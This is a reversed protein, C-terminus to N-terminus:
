LDVAVKKEDLRFEVVPKARGARIAPQLYDDTALLQEDTSAQAALERDMATAMDLPLQSALPVYISAVYYYYSSTLGILLMLLYIQAFSAEKLAMMGVMTSQAFLLAVVFCRAMMPWWKGGTEFIPEYVFLMQHKYVFTAGAFYLLAAALIVPCICAYTAAVVFLLMDQAYIKAFPFWGPNSTNRVAGFLPAAQRDRPTLNATFAAKLLASFLCPLRVLEVGLGTLAKVLIFNTFFGGMKPLSSGLLPFTAAPDKSLQAVVNVVSGAITTVLFVNLIQFTFYRHFSRMQNVSFSTCGEVTALFTLVPPLLNMIGVLVLPQLMEVLSLFVKSRACGAAVWPFYGGLADVSFVFSLLTVPAIWVAILLLVAVEVVLRRALTGKRSGYLNSWMVDSPEPAEVVSMRGALQMHVVQRATTAATFTRFTVFAKSLFMRREEPPSILSRSEESGLGDSFEEGMRGLRIRRWGQMVSPSTWVEWLWEGYSMKYAQFRGEAGGSSQSSASCHEDDSDPCDEGSRPAARSTDFSQYSSDGYEWEEAPPASNSKSHSRHGAAASAGIAKSSKFGKKVIETVKLFEDIVHLDPGQEAASLRSDHESLGRALRQERAVAINLDDLQQSHHRIADVADLMNGVQVTPRRHGLHDAYLARELAGVVEERQDVLRELHKLNQALKVHMVANPYLAEFYKALTVTSRFKHPIGEVLVTRLHAHTQVM